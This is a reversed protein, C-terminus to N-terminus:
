LEHNTYCHLKNELDWFLGYKYFFFFFLLFETGKSYNERQRNELQTTHTRGSVNIKFLFYFSNYIHM